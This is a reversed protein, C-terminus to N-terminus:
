HGGQEPAVHDTAGAEHEEQGDRTMYSASLMQCVPCIFSSTSGTRIKTIATACIPCPQGEKYGVLFQTGDVAGGQGHLGKEFQSGGLAVWEQLAARMEQWLLAAEDVRLTNAPRDPHLRARFLIDHIYMNGIGALKSQDLLLAKIRTRRGDLLARFAPLTLDLADPGLRATLAHAALADHTVLHLNGFWWFHFALRTSDDLGLHAQCKTPLPQDPGLRVIDGGMGL